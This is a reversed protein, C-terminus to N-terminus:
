IAKSAMDHLDLYLLKHARCCCHAEWGGSIKSEKLRRTTKSLSLVPKSSLLAMRRFIGETELWATIWIQLQVEKCLFKWDSGVSYHSRPSAEQTLKCHHSTFVRCLWDRVSAIPPILDDFVESWSRERSRHWVWALQRFNVNYLNNNNVGSNLPLHLAQIQVCILHHAHLDDLVVLCGDLPELAQSHHLTHQLVATSNGFQKMNALSRLGVMATNVLLLLYLRCDQTRTHVLAHCIQLHPSRMFSPDCLIDFFLIYFSSIYHHIFLLVPELLDKKHIVESRLPSKRGIAQHFWVRSTCWNCHSRPDCGRKAGLVWHLMAFCLLARFWRM